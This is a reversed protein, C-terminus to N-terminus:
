FHVGVQLTLGRIEGLLGEARAVFPYSPDRYELAGYVAINEGELDFDYNTGAFDYEIEGRILSALLGASPYFGTEEIEAGVGIRPIFEIYSVDGETSGVPLGTLVDHVDVDIDGGCYVTEFAYEVFWTQREAYLFNMAGNFGIAGGYVEYTDSFVEEILADVFVGAAGTGARYRLRVRERDVDDYDIKERVQNPPAGGVPIYGKTTLEEFEWDEYFIRLDHEISSLVEAARAEKQQMPPLATGPAVPSAPPPPVAEGAGAPWSEMAEAIRLGSGPLWGEIFPAMRFPRAGDGFLLGDEPWASIQFAFCIVLATAIIRM